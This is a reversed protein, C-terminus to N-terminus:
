HRRLARDRNAGARDCKRPHGHSGGRIGFRTHARGCRGQIRRLSRAPGHRPLRRDVRYQRDRRAPVSMAPVVQRCCLFVGKLNVDLVRDWDEETQEVLPKVVLTGANNVLIDIQGFREITQQVMRKVEDPQSVDTAIGLAQVGLDVLEATVSAIRDAARDLIGLHAGARALCMAVGRGIGQGSGTVIAVRGDLNTEHMAPM